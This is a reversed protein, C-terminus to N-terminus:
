CAGRANGLTLSCLCQCPCQCPCPCTCLVFRFTPLALALTPRPSTLNSNSPKAATLWPRTMCTCTHIRPLATPTTYRTPRGCACRRQECVCPLTADTRCIRFVEVADAQVCKQPNIAPFLCPEVQTHASLMQMNKPQSSRTERPRPLRSKFMEILLGGSACTPPLSAHWWDHAPAHMRGLWRMVTCTFVDYM